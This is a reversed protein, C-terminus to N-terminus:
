LRSRRPEPHRRARRAGRRRATQRPLCFSEDAPCPAGARERCPSQAAGFGIQRQQWARAAADDAEAAGRRAYQRGGDGGATGQRGGAGGRQRGLWAGETRPRVFLVNLMATALPHCAPAFMPQYKGPHWGSLFCLQTNCRSCPVASRKNCSGLSSFSASELRWRRLAALASVSCACTSQLRLSLMCLSEACM